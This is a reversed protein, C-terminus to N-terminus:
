PIGCTSKHPLSFQPAKTKLCSLGQGEATYIDVGALTQDLIMVKHNMSNKRPQFICQEYPELAQMFLLLFLFINRNVQQVTQQLNKKSGCGETGLGQVIQYKRNEVCVESIRSLSM